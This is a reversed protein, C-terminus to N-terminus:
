RALEDARPRRALDHDLLRKTSLEELPEPMRIRPEDALMAAFLRM